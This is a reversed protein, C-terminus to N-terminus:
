RGLVARAVLQPGLAYALGVLGALGLAAAAAEAPNEVGWRVLRTFPAETPAVAEATSRVAPEVYEAWVTALYGPKAAEAASADLSAEAAEAVASVYALYVEPADEQGSALEAALTALWVGPEPTAGKRRDLNNDTAQIFAGFVELDMYAPWDPNSSAAIWQTQLDSSLGPYFRSKYTSLTM